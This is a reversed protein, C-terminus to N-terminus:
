RGGEEEKEQEQLRHGAVLILTSHVGPGLTQNQLAWHEGHNSIMCEKPERATPCLSHTGGDPGEEARKTWGVWGVAETRAGM